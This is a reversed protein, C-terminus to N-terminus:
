ITMLYQKVYFAAKWSYRLMDQFAEAEFFIYFTGRFEIPFFTVSCLKKNKM